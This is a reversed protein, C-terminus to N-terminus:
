WRRSRRRARVPRDSSRSWSAQSPESRSTTCCRTAVPAADLVAVSELSALSVEDARPYRFSVVDFEITAAGEPLPVAGPKDDVMPPLDLVEFVRDFSVLATMVDVQVNSLATLPGYLRTLLAALAVLTGM